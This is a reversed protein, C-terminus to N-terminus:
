HIFLLKIVKSKSADSNSCFILYVGTHVRSKNFNKGDWLYQGGESKGEMVLNGSIDTIKVTTEAILGTVVVDGHYTERVPNPYVYADSYSEAGSTVEGKYSVMGLDTVFFVEGTGPNVVIKEISNSPLSSNETTFHTLQEDGDESVLYAGSGATGLWKENAGNLAICNVTETSLLYQTSGDITIIPQYAYFSESRLLNGPNAYVAVGSSTGVWVDGDEDEVFDYVKSSIISNDEDRVYFTALVDDEQDAYSENENFAFLAQGTARLVWKDGNSLCQIKQIDSRNALSSYSLSLWEGSASYLKIAEASNADLLWLNGEEDTDMGSIGKTGLPSNLSNWNAQYEQDEFVFLGDGWSGAYIRSEDSKDGVLQLLDYKDTFASTNDSSYNTWKEDEFVSLVAEEGLGVYSSSAGGSVLWTQEGVSYIGSVNESLPGDPKIQESASGEIELLSEQYDAVFTRGDIQLADRMASADALDMQASQNGNSNYIQIEDAETVWLDDDVSRLSYIRSFSGTFASWVGNNLRYLESSEDTVYRSVVLDGDLVELHECKRQYQSIGLEQTWNTFDALNTSSLSASFLGEDTAAWISNSEIKLENVTLKAGENGIYYTDAVEKKLLNIAVIGFETGLYAFDGETAICLIEKEDLLSFNKVDAINSISGNRILDINGSEYGILLTESDDAWGIASIESESLGGTKSYAVIENDNLSYSFLGSASLCYLNENGVLLKEAKLYPLHERWDGIKLQTWGTLSILTLLFTLIWGARLKM